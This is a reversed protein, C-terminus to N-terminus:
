ARIEEVSLLSNSSDFGLRLQLASGDERLSATIAIELLGETSPQPSLREV